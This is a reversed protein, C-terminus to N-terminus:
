KGPLLKVLEVEMTIKLQKEDLVTQLGGRPAAPAPAGGPQYVPQQPVPAPLMPPRRGGTYDGYGQRMPPTYTPPTYTPPTYGGGAYPNGYPNQVPRIPPPEVPVPGTMGPAPAAEPGPSAVEVNITKVIFGYPSSSFGSLVAALESSFCRFTLEYPTMVALENTVSRVGLYDTSPGNSDDSSARERRINDLSNVKADFLVDCIAKVEGLQVALAGLSGQTYVLTKREAAFSFSYDPQSLTVSTNAASRQMQDVTRHLAASFEQSTISTGEPIAAPRQYYKRTQGLYDKLQKQQDKAIAINDVSGSGPHPKEQNLHDLQDYQTQLDELMKNNLQWKTFLYFGALGMLLVAVVGGIVFYLNRKVWSM